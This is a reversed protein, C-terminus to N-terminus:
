AFIRAAQAAIAVAIPAFLVFALALNVTKTMDTDGQPMRTQNTSLHPRTKTQIRPCANNRQSRASAPARLFLRPGHPGRRGQQGDCAPKPSWAVILAAQNLAAFAVPAFLAFAAAIAIL